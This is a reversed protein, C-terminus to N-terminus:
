NDFLSASKVANSAKSAAYKKADLDEWSGDAKKDYTGPLGEHIEPMKIVVPAQKVPSAWKKTAQIGASSAMTFSSEEEKDSDEETSSARKRLRNAASNSSFSSQSAAEPFLRAPPSFLSSMKPASSAGVRLDLNDLEVPPAIEKLEQVVTRTGLDEGSTEGAPASDTFFVQKPPSVIDFQPLKPSGDGPLEVNMEAIGNNHHIEAMEGAATQSRAMDALEQAAASNGREHLELTEVDPDDAVPPPPILATSVGTTMTSMTRGVPSVPDDDLTGAYEFDDPCPKEAGRGEDEDSEDHDYAAANTELRMRSEQEGADEDYDYAAANTELRIRAMDSGRRESMDSGRRESEKRQAEATSVAAVALREIYRLVFDQKSRHKFLLRYHDESKVLEFMVDAMRSHDDDLLSEITDEVLEKQDVDM